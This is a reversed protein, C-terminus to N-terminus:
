ASRHFTFLQQRDGYHVRTIEFLDPDTGYRVDISDRLAELWPDSAGYDFGIVSREQLFAVEFREGETDTAKLYRVLAQVLVTHM